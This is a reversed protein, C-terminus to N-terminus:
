SNAHCVVSPADVCAIVQRTEAFFRDVRPDVTDFVAELDFWAPRQRKLVIGDGTKVECGVVNRRRMGRGRDSFPVRLGTSVSFLVVLVFIQAARIWLGSSAREPM